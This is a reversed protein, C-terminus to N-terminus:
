ISLAVARIVVPMVAYEGEGERERGKGGAHLRRRDSLGCVVVCMSMGAGQM